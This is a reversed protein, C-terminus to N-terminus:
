KFPPRAKYASRSKANRDSRDNRDNRNCNTSVSNNPNVSNASQQRNRCRLSTRLQPSGINANVISTNQRCNSQLKSQRLANLRQNQVKTLEQELMDAEHLTSSALSSESGVKQLSITEDYINEYNNELLEEYNEYNSSILSTTLNSISLEAPLVSFPQVKAVQLGSQSSKKNPKAYEVLCEKKEKLMANVLDQPVEDYIHSDEYNEPDTNEKKTSEEVKQSEACETAVKKQSEASRASQRTLTSQRSQDSSKEESPRKSKGNKRKASCTSPDASSQRSSTSSRMMSSSLVPRKALPKEFEFVLVASNKIFDRQTPSLENWSECYVAENAKHILFRECSKYLKQVTRAFEDSLNKSTNAYIHDDDHRNSARSGNEGVSECMLVINELKLFTRLATECKMSDVALLLYNELIDLQWSKDFGLQIFSSRSVIQDYNAAVYKCCDEILEEILLLIMENWKMKTMSGSLQQLSIIKDIVNENSLSDLIASYIHNIVDNNKSIPQRHIRARYGSKTPTSQPEPCAQTFLTAFQKTSWIRKYHRSIWSICCNYLSPIECKQALSLCNIVGSICGECPTHFQHCYNRKIEFLIVDKLVSLQFLDSLSLLEALNLETTYEKDILSALDDIVPLCKSREESSFNPINITGSYIHCIVFHVSDYSFDILNIQNCEPNSVFRKAFFESRAMLICRHARLFQSKDAVLLSFDCNIQNVFLKLLDLGLQSCSLVSKSTVMENNEEEKQQAQQQLTGTFESKTKELKNRLISASKSTRSGTINSGSLTKFHHNGLRFMGDNQCSSEASSRNMKENGSEKKAIMSIPLLDCDQNIKRLNNPLRRDDIFSSNLSSENSESTAKQNFRNRKRDFTSSKPMSNNLQPDDLDIFFLGSSQRTASTLSREMEDIEHQKAIIQDEDLFYQLGKKQNQLQKEPKKDVRNAQSASKSTKAPKTKSDNSNSMLSDQEIKRSLSSDDESETLRGSKNLKSEILTNIPTHCQLNFTGSRVMSGSLTREEEMENEFSSFTEKNQTLLSKESKEAKENGVAKQVKNKINIMEYFLSSRKDLRPEDTTDQKDFSLEIDDIKLSRAALDDQCKTTSDSHVSFEDCIESVDSVTDAGDRKINGYLLDEDKLLGNIEIKENSLATILQQEENEPDISLRNMVVATDIQNEMEKIENDINALKDVIEERSVENDSLLNIEYQENELGIKSLLFTKDKKLSDCKPLGDNSGDVSIQTSLDNSNKLSREEELNIYLPEDREQKVQMRKSGDQKAEDLLSENMPERCSNDLKLYNELTFLEQNQLVKIKNLVLILELELSEIHPEESYIGQLFGVLDFVQLLEAPLRIHVFCPKIEQVPYQQHEEVEGNLRNSNSELNHDYLPNALATPCGFVPVLGAPDNGVIFSEKLLEFLAPM